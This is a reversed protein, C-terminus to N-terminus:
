MARMKLYRKIDPISRVGMVVAGAALATAITASLVGLSRV